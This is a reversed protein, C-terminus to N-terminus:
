ENEIVLRDNGQENFFFLDILENNQMLLTCLQYLLDVLFKEMEKSFMETQCSKLLSLLPKLFPEHVLLVYHSHSLLM